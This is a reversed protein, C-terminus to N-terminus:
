IIRLINLAFNLVAQFSTCLYTWWYDGNFYKIANNLICITVLNYTESDANM